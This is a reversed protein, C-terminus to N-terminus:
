SPAAAGGDVLFMRGEVEASALLCTTAEGAILGRSMHLVRYSAKVGDATSQEGRRLETVLPHNALEDLQKALPSARGLVQTTGAAARTHLFPLRCLGEDASPSSVM